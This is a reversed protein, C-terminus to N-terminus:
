SKDMKKAWIISEFGYFEWTGTFTKKLLTSFPEFLLGMLWPILPKYRKSSYRISFNNKKLIKLIAEFNPPSGKHTEDDYYNLTGKRNPFNISEECPFSLYILGNNDVANIMALLTEERNDCHELNHSCIVANFKEKIKNISKAFLEKNVIIYKDILSKNKKSLNYDHIDIGTYKFKKSVNKINHVSENGCGVDLINADKELSTLFSCLHNPRNLVKLSIKLKKFM